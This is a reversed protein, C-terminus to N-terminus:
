EIRIDAEKIVRAWKDIDRRLQKGFEAPTNGVAELGENSLRASVDPQQAAERYLRSLSEILRPPTRAAAFVGFWGTVAYGAIGSEAITPLEPAIPSRKEGTVALARLRGAKVQALAAPPTSFYLQVEGGLLAIVAPGGGKYAVQQMPVKTVLRFLEAALHGMSGIGPAAYNLGGPRTKAFQVLEAVSKVPTAPNVVLILPGEALNTVPAFDKLVDFPLKRGLSPFTSFNAFIVMVTHGDPESRAVIDAGVAGAAGGRNDIVFPIGITDSVKQSVTRGVFDSGGGAAAAVVVRIPRTPFSEAAHVASAVLAFVVAGAIKGSM